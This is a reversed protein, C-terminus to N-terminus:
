RSTEFTVFASCVAPILLTSDISHKFLTSSYIKLESTSFIVSHMFVIKDYNFESRCLPSHMRSCMVCQSPWVQDTNRLLLACELLTLVNPPSM